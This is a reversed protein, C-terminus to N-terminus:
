PRPSCLRVVIFYEPTVVKPYIGHKPYPPYSRDAQPQTVHLKGNASRCPQVDISHSFDKPLHSTPQLLLSHRHPTLVFQRGVANNRVDIRALEEQSLTFTNRRTGDSELKFVTHEPRIHRLVIRRKNM